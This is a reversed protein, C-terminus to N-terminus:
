GFVDEITDATGAPRVWAELQELDARGPLPFRRVFEGQHGYTRATLMAELDGRAAAPLAAFGPDAYRTTRNEDVHALGKVLADLIKERNRILRGRAAVM